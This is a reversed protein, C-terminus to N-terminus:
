RDGTSRVGPGDCCSRGAIRGHLGGQRLGFGVGRRDLARINGHRDVTKTPGNVVGDNGSGSEDTANGNFPYHAVLGNHRLVRVNDAYAIYAKGDDNFAGIGIFDLNFERSSVEAVKEDDIYIANRTGNLIISLRYTTDLAAPRNISVDQGTAPDVYDVTLKVGTARWVVEAGFTTPAPLLSNAGVTVGAGQVNGASPLTLEAEIGYISKDRLFIGNNGANDGAIEAEWGPPARTRSIMAWVSPAVKRAAISAM